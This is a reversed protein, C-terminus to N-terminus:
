ARRRWYSLGVLGSGLLLFAAPEPTESPTYTYLVSVTADAAGTLSASYLGTGDQTLTHSTKATVPLTVDGSGTFLYFLSEDVGGSVEDHATGARHYPTGVYIQYPAGASGVLFSPFVIVLPDGGTPSGLMVRIGAEGYLSVPDTSGTNSIDLTLDSNSSLSLTIGTLAGLSTDFAAFSVSDTFNAQTSPITTTYGIEAAFAGSSLALIVFLISIRRM